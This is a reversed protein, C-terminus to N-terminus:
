RRHRRRPVSVALVVLTTLTLALGLMISGSAFRLVVVHDGPPVQVAKGLAQAAFVPAAHGDITASWGPYDADAVFLWVPRGTTVRVRVLTDRRREVVLSAGGLDASPPDGPALRHDPDEVVLVPRGAQQLRAIAETPGAVAVHGRCLRIPPLAARNVSVAPADPGPGGIPRFGTADSPPAETAVTGVSLIDILRLGPRVPGTGTAEDHLVPELEVRRRLTLALAGNMSQLRWLRDSLGVFAGLTATFVARYDPRDPALLGFTGYGTADYTRLARLDPNRWLRVARVSAPASVLARDFFALQHLRLAGCEAVLLAALAGRLLRARLPSPHSPRLAVLALAALALSLQLVPPDHRALGLAVATWALGAALCIAIRRPRAAAWDAVREVGWGALLAVGLGAPLLYIGTVRFFHEGPVLHLEYPWTFPPSTDGLGLMALSLTAALHGRLRAPLPPLVAFPALCVLLLSGVGGAASDPRATFLLARADAPLTSRLVLGVGGSRHSLGVLELLPVWQVAGLGIATVAAIALGRATTLARSRWGPPAGALCAVGVYLVTAHAVQPYGALILLAFAAGLAVSRGLDPRALWREAAWLTWPVWTIAGGITLNQQQGVWAPAFVTGVTALVSAAAGLGVSACLGAMGIGALGMCVAHFLNMSVLAGLQPTVLAAFALNLPQAFAGQGEAFLPHGGYAWPAWAISGHGSVWAAHAELLPLGHLISDGQVITRGGFLAPAWMIATLVAVVLAPLSRRALRTRDASAARDRGALLDM